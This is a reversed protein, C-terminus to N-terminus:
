RGAVAVAAVRRAGHGVRAVGERQGLAEAVELGRRQQARPEDAVARQAHGAVRLAEPEVAEAGARVDDALDRQVLAPADEGERAGVVVGRLGERQLEAALPRAVRQPGRGLLEVRRDDEGGDALEHGRRQARHPAAPTTTHAPMWM